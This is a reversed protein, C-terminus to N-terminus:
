AAPRIVVLSDDAPDFRNLQGSNWESVWIAGTSDSWVRRAGQAPTPPDIEVVSGDAAIMGIYSGALSAFYIQGDPTATIGYPGRGRPAPYAEIAGSAVDLVGYIGREAGHVV